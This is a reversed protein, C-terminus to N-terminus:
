LVRKSSRSSKSKPNVIIKKSPRGGTSQEEVRIYGMNVLTQLAPTMNEAKKFKGKCLDFLDRKTITSQGTAEIRRWLYKANEQAEDAGM